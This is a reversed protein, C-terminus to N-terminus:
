LEKIKDIVDCVYEGEFGKLKKLIEKKCANWGMRVYYQYEDSPIKEKKKKVFEEFNM